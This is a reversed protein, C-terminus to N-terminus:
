MFTDDFFSFFVVIIIFDFTLFGRSYNDQDGLKVINKMEECTKDEIRTKDYYPKDKNKCFPTNELISKTINEPNDFFEVWSRYNAKVNKINPISINMLKRNNVIKIAYYNPDLSVVYELKDLFDISVLVTSDIDLTGFIWKVTRLKETHAERLNTVKIYGIVRTCGTELKELSFRDTLCLGTTTTNCYNIEDFQIDVNESIMFNEMEDTTICFESPMSNISVTFQSTNSTVSSFNKLQPLNLNTQKINFNIDINCACRSLNTMGIETLYANDEWTFSGDPNCEVAELGELFKGSTFNTAQVKLSGYLTKMNKFALTLQKESMNSNQNVVINACVTSCNMPFLKLNQFTVFDETFICGSECYKSFYSPVIIESSILNILFIVLFFRKM